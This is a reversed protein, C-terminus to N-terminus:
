FDDAFSSRRARLQEAKIRRIVRDALAEGDEGPQQTINISGITVGGARGAAGSGTTAFSPGALSMAGAGAVAGAMRGVARLPGSRGRDIGQALGETLHGGMAMFVRSPSKIGLWLKFSSPLMGVLGQWDKLLQDWGSRIGGILGNIISTGISAFVTGVGMLISVLADVGGKFMQKLGEWAKGFDGTLLGIVFKITGGLFEFAGTAVGIVTDIVALFTGGLAGTVVNALGTFFDGLGTSKFADVLDNWVGKIADFLPQLKKMLWDWNQYILYAAGGVGVAVAAIIGVLPLVGIGLGAAITTLGGFISVLSGFAILLPGVAAAALAGWTILSQLHPDLKNFSEILTTLHTILPTLALLFMGIALQAEDWSGGAAKLQNATSGQTRVVDGNAKTLQERILATRALVKDGESFDGKGIPKFGMQLAKAKVLQDSLLVGVARLPESEGILGSFIKERASQNSLNKFSALDQTLVTLTKSLEVAKGPDMQKGLIDQYSMAMQMMEATSRHLQDGTQEAWKRASAAYKGFTVDFASAMENFDMATKFSSGAVAAIPTSVALSSSVGAGSISSGASKLKEGSRGAKGIQALRDKQTALKKNAAEVKAGLERQQNALDSTSVGAKKLEDRTKNLASNQDRFKQELKASAERAKRFEREMAKTPNEATAIARGLERAKTAAAAMEERTAEVGTKLERFKTIAVQLGQLNRIEASTGRMDGALRKSADSMGKLPGTLKDLASFVVRLSLSKDM